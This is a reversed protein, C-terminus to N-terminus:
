AIPDRTSQTYFHASWYGSSYGWLLGEGTFIDPSNRASKFLTEPHIHLPSSTQMNSRVLQVTESIEQEGSSHKYLNYFAAADAADFSLSPNVQARYGLEYGWLNESRVDSSGQREVLDTPTGAITQRGDREFRSPIRNSQTIAAWVAQDPTPNYLLRINPLILGGTFTNKLYKAGITLRVKEQFLKIEDQLFATFTRLRRESPDFSLSESNRLQDGSVRYGVGWVIDQGLPLPIRHQLDLDLTNRIEKFSLEDRRTKDYYFQLTLNHQQGFTHNWRGLLNGGSMRVDEVANTLFAPGITAPFSTQQGAQGQYYDGQLTVSDQSSADWDLRGGTRGMRWDDHSGEASATRDREFGKGYLRYSLNNGIKGGYRLTTFAREETGGGVTVLGGQTEKAKKTIIHVAGNIANSGLLTGGPGRIVEIRDIDELPLDQVEWFVGAALPSYVTRGDILVLLDDAFRGNFGRSTIAWKQSDIRAVHLGPVMRLVEPISNAGSRRIDEQTVVFIAAATQAVAQPKRSVSTVEITMLEELSLDILDAAPVTDALAPLASISVTLLLCVGLSAIRGRRHSSSHPTTCHHTM